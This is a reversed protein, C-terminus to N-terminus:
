PQEDAGPLPHRLRALAGEIAGVSVPKLLFACADTQWARYAHDMYATLFIVNTTPDIALLDRSVDFGSVAGMEIDLFALDIKTQRAYDLAESPNSFGKVDANPLAQRLVSLSGTLIIREDDLMIVNARRKEDASPLLTEVDVGLCRAIQAVMAADPMRRGTEWSAVSSRDVFLRRALMQQSIQQETRIQKLKEGFTKAM